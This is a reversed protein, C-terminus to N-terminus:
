ALRQVHLVAQQKAAGAPSVPHQYMKQQAEVQQALFRARADELHAHRVRPSQVTHSAVSVVVVQEDEDSLDSTDVAHPKVMIGHPTRVLADQHRFPLTRQLLRHATMRLSTESLHPPPPPADKHTPAGMAAGRLLRGAIEEESAKPDGGEARRQQEIYEEWADHEDELTDFAEIVAPPLASAGGVPSVAARAPPLSSLTPSVRWGSPTGAAARPSPRFGVTAELPRTMPTSVPGIRALPSMSRPQAM